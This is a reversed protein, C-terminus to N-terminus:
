AALISSPPISETVTRVHNLVSAIISKIFAGKIPLSPIRDNTSHWDSLKVSLDGADFTRDAAEHGRPLECLRTSRERATLSGFGPLLLSMILTLFSLSARSVITVSRAFSSSTACPPTTVVGPAAQSGLPIRGHGVLNGSHPQDATVRDIRLAEIERQDPM